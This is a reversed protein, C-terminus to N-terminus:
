RTRSSTKPPQTRTSSGGPLFPVMIASLPAPHTLGMVALGSPPASNGIVGVVHPIIFMAAPLVIENNSPNYYANYTQPTMDWETRDVPKGISVLLGAPAESLVRGDETVVRIAVVPKTDITSNQATLANAQGPNEQAQAPWLAGGTLLAAAVIKRLGQGCHAKM